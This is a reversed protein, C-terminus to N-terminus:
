TQCDFGFFFQGPASDAASQLAPGNAYLTRLHMRQAGCLAPGQMLSPAHDGALLCHSQTLYLRALLNHQILSRVIHPGAQMYVRQYGGAQVCAALAPGTIDAAEPKPQLVTCGQQRLTDIRATPASAGTLVTVAQRHQRLTDPLTFELSMSLIVVATQQHWGRAKRWRALHAHVPRLGVQLINGHSGRALARLYGGHTVLCDAHAQLQTFLDWDVESALTAPVVPHAAEPTTVAIRGDLSTAFNAYIYPQASNAHGIQQELYLSRVPVQQGTTPVLQTLTQETEAM